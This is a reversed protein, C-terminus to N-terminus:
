VEIGAAGMIKKFKEKLEDLEQKLKYFEEQSYWTVLYNRYTWM